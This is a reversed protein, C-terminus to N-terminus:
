DWVGCAVLETLAATNEPLFQGATEATKVMKFNLNYDATATVTVTITTTVSSSASPTGFTAGGDLTLTVIYRTTNVTVYGTVTNKDNNVTPKEFSGGTVVVSLTESGDMEGEDGSSLTGSDSGTVTVTIGTSNQAIYHLTYGSDDQTNDDDSMTYVAAVAVVIIVAAAAVAIVKTRTDYWDISM